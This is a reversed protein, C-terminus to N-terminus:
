RRSAHGSRARAHAVLPRRDGQACRERGYRARDLERAPRERPLARGFRLALGRAFKSDSAAVLGFARECGGRSRRCSAARVRVCSSRSRPTSPSCCPRRTRARRLKVHDLALEALPPEGTRDQPFADIVRREIDTILIPALRRGAVTACLREHLPGEPLAFGGRPPAELSVNLEPREHLAGRVKGM